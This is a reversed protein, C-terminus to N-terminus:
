RNVVNRKAHRTVSQYIEKGDLHVHSHVELMGGDDGGGPPRRAAIARALDIPEPDARPMLPTRPLPVVSAGKPLFRMEPGREGVISWGASVATGGTALMPMDPTSLSFGGVKGIGPIHTNVAPVTFSLGNWQQIIWNIAAKFADKIGDWMGSSVSSIRKPLQQVFSVVANFAAPIYRALKAFIVITGATLIAILGLPATLLMIAVRHKNIFGTVQNWHEGLEYLGVSLVAVSVIIAGIPNADMAADLLYMADGASRISPILAVVVGLTGAADFAATWFAAIKMAAGYLKTAGYLGIAATAVDKTITKHKSMWGYSTKLVDGVQHYAKVLQGAVGKGKQGDAVFASFKTAVTALTPALANALTVKLGLTAWNMQEQSETFKNWDQQNIVVGYKKAQTQLDDLGASGDKILPMLTQWGRGLVLTAAAATATKDKAHTLSQAVQEFIANPNSAMLMKHTVGLTRFAEAQKGAGLTASRTMKTQLATVAALAKSRKSQEATGLALLKSGKMAITSTSAMIAVRKAQEAASSGYDMAAARAGALKTKIDTLKYGFSIHAQRATEIQRSLLGFTRTLATGQIGVTEAGAAYASAQVATLGYVTTLTRTTKALDETTTIASKAFQYGLFATGLGVVAGALKKIPGFALRSAKENAGLSKGFTGSKKSATAAEDGALKSAEALDALGDAVVTLDAAAERANQVALRLTVGEEDSM